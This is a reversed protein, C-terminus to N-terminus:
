SWDMPFTSKGPNGPWKHGGGDQDGFIIHMAGQQGDLLNVLDSEAYYPHAPASAPIRGENNGQGCYVEGTVDSVYNGNADLHFGAPAGRAFGGDAGNAQGAIGLASDLSGGTKPGYASGPQVVSQLNPTGHTVCGGTCTPDPRKHNVAWAPPPPPPSAYQGWASDVALYAPFANSAPPATATTATGATRTPESPTRGHEM